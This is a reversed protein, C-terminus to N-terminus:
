SNLFFITDGYAISKAFSSRLYKLTNMEQQLRPIVTLSIIIQRIKNIISYWPYQYLTFKYIRNYETNAKTSATRIKNHITHVIHHKPFLKIASQVHIPEAQITNRYIKKLEYSIPTSPYQNTHSTRRTVGYFALLLSVKHNQTVASITKMTNITHKTVDHINKTTSKFLRRLEPRIDAKCLKETFKMYINYRLHTNFHSDNSKVQKLMKDLTQNLTKDIIYKERPSVVVNGLTKYTLEQYWLKLLPISQQIDETSQTKNHLTNTYYQILHYYRYYEQDIPPTCTQSILM